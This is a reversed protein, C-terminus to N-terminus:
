LASASAIVQPFSTCIDDCFNSLLFTSSSRSLAPNFIPVSKQGGYVVKKNEIATKKMGQKEATQVPVTKGTTSKALRVTEMGRAPTRANVIMTKKRCIVERIIRSIEYELTYM